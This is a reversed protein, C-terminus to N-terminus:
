GGTGQSINARQMLSHVGSQLAEKDRMDWAQVHVVAGASRCESAVAELRELRRSTLLLNWGEKALATATAAGFGSSAGSILVWRATM